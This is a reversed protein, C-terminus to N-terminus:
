LITSGNQEETDAVFTDILTSVTNNTFANGQASYAITGVTGHSDEQVNAAYNCKCWKFESRHVGRSDAQEQLNYILVDM